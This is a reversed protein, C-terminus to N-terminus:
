LTFIEGDRFLYLLDDDMDSCMCLLQSNRSVM